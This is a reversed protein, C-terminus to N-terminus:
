PLALVFEAARRAAQGLQQAQTFGSRERPRLAHNADELWYVEIHGPLRYGRVQERNGHSDRTGQCILAPTPLAALAEERGYPAPDERAHFPYAFGLLGVAGTRGTLSASVRAGRSLGGLILHRGARFRSVAELILEGLLTDRVDSDRSECDPFAMRVVHIGASGLGEAILTPATDELRGNDGPALVVLHASDAPGHTIM